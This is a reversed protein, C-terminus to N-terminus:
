RRFLDRISEGDNIINSSNYPIEITQDEVINYSTARLKNEMRKGMELATEVLVKSDQIITNVKSNNLLELRYFIELLENHINCIYKYEKGSIIYTKM